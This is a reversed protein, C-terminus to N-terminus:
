TEALGLRVLQKNSLGSLIPIPIGTLKNDDGVITNRQDAPTMTKLTDQTYGIAQMLFIIVAANEILVDNQPFAQYNVSGPKTHGHLIVILHNRWWEDDHEKLGAETVWKGALLVGHLTMDISLKAM